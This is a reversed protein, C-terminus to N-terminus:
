KYAKDHHKFEAFIIKDKSVKFILVFSGVHVRKYDNLPSRLNKFHQLEEYNLSIIQNIKKTLAFFLAPNKRKLKSIEEEIQTLDCNM